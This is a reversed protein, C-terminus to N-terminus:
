EIKGTVNKPDLGADVMLEGRIRNDVGIDDEHLPGSGFRHSSVVQLECVFKPDDSRLLKLVRLLM